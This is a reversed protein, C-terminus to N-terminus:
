NPFTGSEQAFHFHKFQNFKSHLIPCFHILISLFTQKRCFAAWEFGNIAWHFTLMFQSVSFAEVFGAFEVLAQGSVKCQKQCSFDGFGLAVQILERWSVAVCCTASHTFAFLQHSCGVMWNQFVSLRSQFFSHMTRVAPCVLAHWLKARQMCGHPLPFHPANRGGFVHDNKVWQRVWWKVWCCHCFMPDVQQSKQFKEQSVWTKAENAYRSVKNHTWTTDLM